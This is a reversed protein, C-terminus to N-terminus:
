YHSPMGDFVNKTAISNPANAIGLYGLGLYREAGNTSGGKIKTIPKYNLKSGINTANTVFGEKRRFQLGMSLIIVLIIFLGFITQADKM